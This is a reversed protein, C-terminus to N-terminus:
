RRYRRRKRRYRFTRSKNIGVFSSVFSIVIIIGVPILIYYVNLFKSNDNIPEFLWDWTKKFFDWTKEFINKEPDLIIDDNDETENVKIALSVQKSTGDISSSKVTLAYIGPINENGEYENLPFSFTTTANIELQGSAVLLDIIDQRTLHVIDDVHIFFNDVYFVPPINDRVQITIIHVSRNNSNDIAELVITWNGVMHGKGTYNDEYVTFSVSNDIFDNVTVQDLIDNLTLTESQGKLITEPATFVPAVDDIVNITVVHIAENGSSDVANFIIEYSGIKNYNASYNDEKVKVTVSSDYNDTATLSNLVTNVDLKKTYSQNYSSKGSIVPETIDKVLVHVHLTAENGASDQVWFILSYTGVETIANPNYNGDVHQILHSIDGDENDIAKIKSQIDVISIPNDINTVFATEGSLVPVKDPVIWKQLSVDWILTDGVKVDTPLTDLRFDFSLKISGVYIRAFEFGSGDQTFISDIVGTHTNNKYDDWDPVWLKFSGGIPDYEVIDGAKWTEFHYLSVYRSTDYYFNYMNGSATGETVYISVYKNVPHIMDIVGKQPENEYPTFSATDMAYTNPTNVLFISLVLALFAIIIKLKSKKLQM